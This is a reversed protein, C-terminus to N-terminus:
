VTNTYQQLVHQKLVCTHTGFVGHKVSARATTEYIFFKGVVAMGVVDAQKEERADVSQM